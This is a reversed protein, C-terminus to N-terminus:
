KSGKLAQLTSNYAPKKTYDRNFLLPFDTKKMYNVIWSDADTVGWITLGHRQAAPVYQLYAKVVFSYMDAQQTLIAATTTFGQVDSPNVRIDLESVRIKLGTAALKRFM